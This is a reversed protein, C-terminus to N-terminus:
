GMNFGDSGAIVVEFQDRYQGENTATAASVPSGWLTCKINTSAPPNPCNPGPNVVPDREFYINIAECGTTSNCYGACQTTNYSMLTYLGM